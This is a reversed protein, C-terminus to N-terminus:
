LLECVYRKGQTCAQNEWTYDDRMELCDGNGRPYDPYWNEYTGPPANGDGAGTWFLVGDHWVWSEPTDLDNGGLWVYATGTGFATTGIFTNKLSSDVTVLHM